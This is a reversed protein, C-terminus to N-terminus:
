RGFVAALIKSGTGVPDARIKREEEGIMLYLGDLAKGTIYQQINADKSKMLGLGAAKGAVANYREALQVKETARTVIPLFKTGLPERTKGSFYETVSTEGGRVITLADQVTIKRAADVLLAKAEPVSAEAARNMAVVLEDVRKQQGTAKLLKAADDLFKPLPIRVKPNGLFGDSRGLLGVAAVAGRELATRIGSAADTQSLARALPAHAVGLTILALAPRRQM